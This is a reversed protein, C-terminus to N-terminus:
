QNKLFEGLLKEFYLCARLYGVLSESHLGLHNLHLCDVPWVELSEPRSREDWPDPLAPLESCAEKLFSGGSFLLRGLASRRASLLQVAIRGARWVCGRKPDGSRLNAQSLRKGKGPRSVHDMNDM